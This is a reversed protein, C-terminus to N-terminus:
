KTGNNEDDASRNIEGDVKDSYDLLEDISPLAVGSEEAIQCIRKLQFKKMGDSLNKTFFTGLIYDMLTEKSAEVINELEKDSPLIDDLPREPRENM